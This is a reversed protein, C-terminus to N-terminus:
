EMYFHTFTTKLNERCVEVKAHIYIHEREVSGQLPEFHFHFALNSSLHLETTQSAVDINFEDSIQWQTQM